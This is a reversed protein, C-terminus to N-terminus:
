ENMPGGAVTAAESHRRAYRVLRTEAAASAITLHVLIINVYEYTIVLM